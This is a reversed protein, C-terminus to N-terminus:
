DARGGSPPEVAAVTHLVEALSRAQVISLDGLVTVGDVLERQWDVSVRVGDEDSWIASVTAFLEGDAIVPVPAGVATGEIGGPTWGNM